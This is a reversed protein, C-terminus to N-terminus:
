NLVTKLWTNIDDTEEACLSHGMTAYSHWDPEYGEALLSERTMFALQPPLVEDALGHAQFIPITKNANSAEDALCDHLPLYTSLAMIGALRKKYRLGTHLAVAGGQSFGALVINDENIGKAVQQQILSELYRSSERIGAEDQNGGPQMNLIDYWAPMVYGQNITVAQMPAHPFVFRIAKEQAIDLQTALPEFDHGDAGLGHLWIVAYDPEAKSDIIIPELYSIM